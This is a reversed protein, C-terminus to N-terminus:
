AHALAPLSSIEEQYMAMGRALGDNLIAPTVRVDQVILTAKIVLRRHEDGGTIASLATEDGRVFIFGALGPLSSQLLAVEFSEIQGEGQM